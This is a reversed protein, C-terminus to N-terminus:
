TGRGRVSQGLRNCKFARMTAARSSDGVIKSTSTDSTRAAFFWYGYGTLFNDVDFVNLDCCWLWGTSRAPWEFFFGFSFRSWSRRFGDCEVIISLCGIWATNADANQFVPVGKRAPGRDPDDCGSKEAEPSNNGRGHQDECDQASDEHPQIPGADAFVEHVAARQRSDDDRDFM